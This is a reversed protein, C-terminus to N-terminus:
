RGYRTHGNLGVSMRTPKGRPLVLFICNKTVLPSILRVYFGGQIGFFCCDYAPIRALAWFRVVMAGFRGYVRSLGYCARQVHCIVVERAYLWSSASIAGGQVQVGSSGAARSGGGLPTGNSSM